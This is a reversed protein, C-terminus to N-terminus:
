YALSYYRVYDVYLRQPFPTGGPDGGLGGGIALNLIMYMGQSLFPNYSGNWASGQPYRVKEVGDVYLYIYNDDIYMGWTHWNGSWGSDVPTTVMTWRQWSDMVNSHQLGAYYEMIDIEGCYPWGHTTINNGLTWWAPWCGWATPIRARMEYYGKGFSFKGQTTISSSTYPYSAGNYTDNRRAEIILQAGDCYANNNTYYQAEGNRVYGIEYGWKAPNPKGVYNFEDSWLLQGTGGVVVLSWMQNYGGHDTWQVNQAGDATSAGTIDMILGSHKNKIKYYGGGADVLGWRQNAGGNDPWQINHAGPYTSAGSIDMLKGSNRNQIKYYGGGADVFRWQQEYGGGYSWQIVKAGDATSSSGIALAKGSHRNVIKYFANTDVNAAFATSPILLAAALALHVISLAALFPPLKKM